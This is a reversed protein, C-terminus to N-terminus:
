ASAAMWTLAALAPLGLLAALAGGRAAWKLPGTEASIWLHGATIMLILAVLSGLIIAM